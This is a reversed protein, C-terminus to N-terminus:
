HRKCYACCVLLIILLLVIGGVGAIIIYSLSLGKFISSGGDPTEVIRALKVENSRIKRKKVIANSTNDSLMRLERRDTEKSDTVLVFFTTAYCKTIYRYLIDSIDSDEDIKKSAGQQRSEMMSVTQMDDKRPLQKEPGDEQQIDQQQIEITPASEQYTRRTRRKAQGDHKIDIVPVATSTQYCKTIYQHLMDQVNQGVSEVGISFHDDNRRPRPKGDGVEQTSKAYCETVYDKLAEQWNTEGSISFVVLLCIIIIYLEFRNM